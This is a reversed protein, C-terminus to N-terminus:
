LVNPCQTHIHQVAAQQREQLTTNLTDVGDIVEDSMTRAADIYAVAYTAHVLAAVPNVDQESQRSWKKATKVLKEVDVRALKPTQAGRKGVVVTESGSWKSLLVVVLILLMVVLAYRLHSALSGFM